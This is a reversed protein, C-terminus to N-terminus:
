ATAVLFSTRRFGCRMESEPVLRTLEGQTTAPGRLRGRDIEGQLEEATVQVVPIRRHALEDISSRATGCVCTRRRKKSRPRSPRPSRM